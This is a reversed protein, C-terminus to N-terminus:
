MHNEYFHLMKQPCGEYVTQLKAKTRYFSGDKNTANWVVFAWLTKNEDKELTEIAQVQDEWGGNEPSPQIWDDDANAVGAPHGDEAEARIKLERKSPQRKPKKPTKEPTSTTTSLRPRKKAGKESRKPEGGIKKWYEELAERVGRVITLYRAHGSLRGFGLATVARFHSVRSSSSTGM